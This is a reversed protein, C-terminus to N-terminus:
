PAQSSIQKRHHTTRLLSVRSDGVREQSKRTMMRLSLEHEGLTTAQAMVARGKTKLLTWQRRCNPLRQHMEGDLSRRELM